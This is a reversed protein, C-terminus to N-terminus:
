HRLAFGQHQLLTLSTTASPTIQIGPLLTKADLNHYVASMGCYYFTVGHKQLQAVLDANPNPGGYAADTQIDKFATGHIVLAIEVNEMDLGLSHQLNLFSAATVFRENLEGVLGGDKVDFAVKLVTDKPLPQTLPIEAIKGYQPILAGSKFDEPGAFATTSTSLLAIFLCLNRNLKM